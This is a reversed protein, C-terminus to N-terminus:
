RLQKETLWNERAIRADILQYLDDFHQACRRPILDFLHIGVVCFEFERLDFAMRPLLHTFKRRGRKQAVRKKKGGSDIESFM